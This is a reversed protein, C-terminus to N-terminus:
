MKVSGATLGKVFYRQLFFYLMLPPIICILSGAMLWEWHVLTDGLINYLAVTIPYMKEESIFVLPLLFNNYAELFVFIVAAIIGPAVLPLIVKILTYIRSAGDIWAAEEIEKPIGNFFGILLWTALASTVGGLVLIVGFYTNFLGLFRLLAYLSPLIVVEAMMQTILLGFLMMTKSSFKFRSFAYSAPVTISLNLLVVGGAYIFSNFLARKLNASEWVNLFNQFYLYKPFLLKENLYGFPTLSVILSGYIPLLAFVLFLIRFTWKVTRNREGKM